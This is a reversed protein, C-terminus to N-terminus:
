CPFKDIFHSFLCVTTPPISICFLSSERRTIKGRESSYSNRDSICRDSQTYRYQLTLNEKKIKRLFGGKEQLSAEGSINELTDKSFVNEKTLVVRGECSVHLNKGRLEGRM